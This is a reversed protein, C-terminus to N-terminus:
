ENKNKRNRKRREERTEPPIFNGLPKEFLEKPLDLKPLKDTWIEDYRKSDEVISIIQGANTKNALLEALKMKDDPGVVLVTKGIVKKDRNELAELKEIAANKMFDLVDDPITNDITRIRCYANIIDEKKM